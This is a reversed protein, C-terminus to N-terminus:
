ISYKFVILATLRIRNQIIRKERNYYEEKKIFNQIFTVTDEM